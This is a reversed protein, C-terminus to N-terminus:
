ARRRCRRAARRWDSDPATSGREAFCAALARGADDDGVVGAAGTRAGLAALNNVANAAGGPIRREGEWRVVLVPAERSLREPAADLYVDAMFDGVVVVRASPFAAAIEAIRKASLTM